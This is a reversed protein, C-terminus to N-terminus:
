FLKNIRGRVLVRMLQRRLENRKSFNSLNRANRVEWTVWVSFTACELALQLMQILTLGGGLRYSGGPNNRLETM